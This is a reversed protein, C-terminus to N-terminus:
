ISLRAIEKVEYLLIQEADGMEESGDCEGTNVKKKMAKLSKMADKETGVITELWLNNSGLIVFRKEEPVKSFVKLKTEKKAM